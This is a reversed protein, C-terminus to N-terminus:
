GAFELREAHAIVETPTPPTLLTEVMESTMPDGSTRYGRITEQVDYETRRLEVDPGLIAWFAGPLEHYRMGVSGPNLSRVGAAQRDFQLHTHGSVLTREPVGEMLARMRAVPTEPTILEEDSRPSGHCFRVAGLGAITVVASEVFTELFERTAESHHELMWRERDTGERGRRLEQLAREGNGRIFIATDGLCELLLRTEEPKSGWTADGLCVIRDVNAEDIEALVAELATANGHIDSIVAVRNAAYGSPTDRSM